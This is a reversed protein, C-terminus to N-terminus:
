TRVVSVALRSAADSPTGKVASTGLPCSKVSDPVELVLQREGSGGGGTDGPQMADPLSVPRQARRRKLLAHQRAHRRRPHTRVQARHQVTHRRQHTPLADAAGPKVSASM